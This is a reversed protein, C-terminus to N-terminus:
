GIGRIGARRSGINKEGSGSNKRKARAEIEYIERRREEEGGEQERVIKM